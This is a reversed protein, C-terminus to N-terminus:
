QLLREPLQETPTVVNFRKRPRANLEDAVVALKAETVM